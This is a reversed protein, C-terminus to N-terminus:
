GELINSIHILANSSRTYINLTLKINHLKALSIIQHYWNWTSRGEKSKYYLYCHIKLNSHINEILIIREPRNVNCLSIVDSINAGLRRKKQRQVHQVCRYILLM